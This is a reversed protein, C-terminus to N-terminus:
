PRHVQGRHNQPVGHIFEDVEDKYEQPVYGLRQASKHYIGIKGPNQGDKYVYGDCLTFSSYNSVSLEPIMDTIEVKLTDTEPDSTILEKDFEYHFKLIVNNNM